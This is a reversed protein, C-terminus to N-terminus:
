EVTEPLSCGKICVFILSKKKKEGGIKSLRQVGQMGKVHAASKFDVAWELVAMSMIPSSRKSFAAADPPEWM